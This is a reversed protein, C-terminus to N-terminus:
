PSFASCVLRYGIFESECRFCEQVKNFLLLYTIESMCQIYFFFGLVPSLLVLLFHSLGFFCLFALSINQLFIHLVPHPCTDPSHSSCCFIPQHISEISYGDLCCCGSVSILTFSLVKGHKNNIDKVLMLLELLLRVVIKM